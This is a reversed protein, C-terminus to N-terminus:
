TEGALMRRVLDTDVFQKMSTIRGESDFEWIDCAETAVPAGHRTSVEFRNVVAARAGEVLVARTERSHFVFADVLRDAAARMDHPGVLAPDAFADAGVMEYTAGPALLAKMAETDGAVRAQWFKELTARIASDSM